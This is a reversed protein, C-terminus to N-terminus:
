KAKGVGTGAIKKYIPVALSVSARLPGAWLVHTSGNPTRFLEGGEEFIDYARQSRTMVGVGVSFEWHFRGKRSSRAYLYDIGGAWLEGQHGSWDHELDYYGGAAFVGISHGTLRYAHNQGANRHRSGLWYRAEITEFMLELCDRRDKFRGGRWLWPAYHDIAVSWRNGIPVEVGVNGLPVLLNSRVAAMLRRDTRPPVTARQKRKPKETKTPPPTAATQTTPVEPTAAAATAAAGATGPRMAPAVAGPCCPLWGTGNEMRIIHVIYLTDQATRTTGFVMPPMDAAQHRVYITDHAATTSRTPTAETPTEPTHAPEPTLEYRCTIRVGSQRLEPFFHTEMYHWSRGGDLDMLQKTRSSTIRKGSDYVLPPTDHIIRLVDDRHPMEKDASVLRTLGDWDGGISRINLDVDSLSVRKELIGVLTNAREQSLRINGTHSGEPSASSVVEVARMQCRADARLERYRSVFEDLRTANSRFLPDYATNSRDFYIQLCLSDVHATTQAAGPTWLCCSLLWAGSRTIIDSFPKRMKETKM